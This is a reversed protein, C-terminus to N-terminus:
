SKKWFLWGCGGVGCSLSCNSLLFIVHHECQYCLIITQRCCWINWYKKVKQKIALTKPAKTFQRRCWKRLCLRGESTVNEWPLGVFLLIYLKIIIILWSSLQLCLSFHWINDVTPTKISTVEGHNNAFFSNCACNELTRQWMNCWVSPIINGRLCTMKPCMQFCVTPFLQVFAVLLTVFATRSTTM